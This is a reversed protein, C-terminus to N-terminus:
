KILLFQVADIVVYGDAGDNSIEVSGKMGATFLFRGLSRWTGDIPPEQQQNITVREVGGKHTIIVLVNRSRNKHHPYALRVEYLGEEKINPVYVARQQGRNSNGDHRYGRGVYPPNATSITEFGTREAQDDDVIVGNLKAPDIAAGPGTKKAPAHYDLVQKDQLLRKQLKDYNVDQVPLNDDIAIAAATAASQGLIFFVPEMRISGYAIHSSSVCIPVLLNTCEARKPIISKYSIRYPGGPNVQVDGENQVTGDPMLIRTCNHSDMNYSGMGVSMPTDRRRRCDNETHVYEGIMRRAERVYIQHPWNGSDTFEDKALGWKAMQERIKAPVRPHNALTWMLGQQYSIHDALIKEREAYTGDPYKYNAGIYDTSVAGNNNTDTKGNPMMDIKLPLRMDGAEFNRLLLEYRKEDYDRPKPFPVRNNPDLCMCMRYCYAQVRHDGQGEAPLPETEILPLLGSSRDGPKRFPDVKVLFRHNHINQSLAWGNLMEGYQSNSERGVHYSVGAAAMLDGEYTADIFMKGRFTKGSEMVIEVIRTGDRRVGKGSRDLREQFVVPVQAKQIWEQLIAEAVKPEFTWMADDESRYNKYEERKGFRWSAPNDYHKKVAQYFERAIGGVVAKNGSDTYGLGGATLGGLHRGPEIIIASKGMRSAQVAASVGASTGGYIIIEAEAAHTSACVFIVIHLGLWDSRTVISKM